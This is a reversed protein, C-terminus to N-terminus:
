HFPELPISCCVWAMHLMNAISRARARALVVVPFLSRAQTVEVGSLCFPFLLNPSELQLSLWLCFPPVTRANRTNRTLSSAPLLPEDLSVGGSFGGLRYCNKTTCAQLTVSPPVDRSAHFPRSENEGKTPRVRLPGDKRPCLMLWRSRRGRRLHTAFARARTCPRVFARAHVGRRARFNLVRGSVRRGAGFRECLM